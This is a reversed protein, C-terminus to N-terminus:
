RVTLTLMPQARSRRAAVGSCPDGEADLCLGIRYVVRDLDQIRSEAEARQAGTIPARRTVDQAQRFCQQNSGVEAVGVCTDGNQSGPDATRSRGAPWRLGVGSLVVTLISLATFGARRM